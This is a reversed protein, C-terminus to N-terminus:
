SLFYWWVSWCDEIDQIWHWCTIHIHNSPCTEAYTQFLCGSWRTNRDVKTQEHRATIPFELQHTTPLPQWISVRSNRKTAQMAVVELLARCTSLLMVSPCDNGSVCLTFRQSEAFESYTCHNGRHQRVSEWLGFQGGACRSLKKERYILSGPWM